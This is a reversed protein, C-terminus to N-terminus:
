ETRACLSLSVTLAHEMMILYDNWSVPSLFNGAAGAIVYDIRGFQEVTRKVADQITEFKRVDGSLGLCKRGNGIKTEFEKAAKISLESRRGFIAAHCGHRM